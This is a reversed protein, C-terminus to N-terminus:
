VKPPPTNINFVLCCYNEKYRNFKSFTSLLNFNSESVHNYLEDSDNEDDGSDDDASDDEGSPSDSKKELSKTVQVEDELVPLYQFMTFLM